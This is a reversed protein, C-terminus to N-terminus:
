GSRSIRVRLAELITKSVPRAVVEAWMGPAVRGGSEDLLTETNLVIRRSENEIYLYGEVSAVGRQLEIELIVGQIRVFAEPDIRKITDFRLTGDELRQGHVEVMAGVAMSGIIESAEDVMGTFSGIVWYGPVKATSRIIGQYEFRRAIDEPRGLIEFSDARLKGDSELFGRVRAYYHLYGVSVPSRDCIYVDMGSVRIRQCLQDNINFSNTSIDEIIGRFEIPKRRVLVHISRAHHEIGNFITHVIVLDGVNLLDDSPAAYDRSVVTDKTVLIVIDHVVTRDHVQILMEGPLADPIKAVFGEIRMTIPRTPGDVLSIRRSEASAAPMRLASLLVVCLGLWALRNIRM